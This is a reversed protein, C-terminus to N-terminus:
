VRAIYINTHVFVFLFFRVDFNIGLYKVSRHKHVVYGTEFCTTLFLPPIIAPTQVHHTQNAHESLPLARLRDHAHNPTTDSIPRSERGTSQRILNHSLVSREHDM